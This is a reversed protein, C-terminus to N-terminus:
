LFIFIRLNCEQRVPVTHAFALEAFDELDLQEGDSLSADLNGVGVNGGQGRGVQGQGQGNSWSGGQCHSVERM